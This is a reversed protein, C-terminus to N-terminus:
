AADSSALSVAVRGIDFQPDGFRHLPVASLISESLGPNADLYAKVGETFALPSIVNVNINDPAWENAAVRSIARLSADLVRDEREAM